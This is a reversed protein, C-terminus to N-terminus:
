LVEFIFIEMEVIGYQNYGSILIERHLMKIKTNTLMFNYMGETGSSSGLEGIFVILKHKNPNLDTFDVISYYDCLAMPNLYGDMVIKNPPPCMVLLIEAESNFKNVADLGNIKYFELEKEKINKTFDIIDTSIWKKIITRNKNLTNLLIRSGSCNGSMIELITIDNKNERLLLDSLIKGAKIVIDIRLTPLGSDEQHNNVVVKNIIKEKWANIMREKFEPSDLGPPLVVARSDELRTTNESLMIDRLTTNLLM